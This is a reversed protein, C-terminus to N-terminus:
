TKLRIKLVGRYANGGHTSDEFCQSDVSGCKVQTGTSFHREPSKLERSPSFIAEDKKEVRIERIFRFTKGKSDVLHLVSILVARPM